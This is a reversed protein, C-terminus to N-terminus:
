RGGSYPAVRPSKSRGMASRGSGSMLPLPESAFSSGGGEETLRMSEDDLRSASPSSRTFTDGGGRTGGGGVGSKGGSLWPKYPSTAGFPAVKATRRGLTSMRGTAAMSGGRSGRAGAGGGFFDVDRPPLFRVVAGLALAVVGLAISILLQTVTIPYTAFVSSGVMVIIIQAVFIGLLIGVGPLNNLVGHLPNLQDHIRRCNFYNFLQFCVFSNFVCTYHELTGMRGPPVMYISAGTTTYQLAQLVGIQVLGQVVVAKIMSPTLIPLSKDGPRLQMIEPDAREAGLMLAGFADMILNIWLLQISALPFPTDAGMKSFASILTTICAVFNVCLQFQLFKRLNEMIARGWLVSDVASNLDGTLSVVRAAERCVEVASHGMSFGIHSASLTGADETNEGTTLVVEGLEKLAECLMLKDSPTARALVELRPVAASREDPTMNRWKSGELLIGDKLIGVEEALARACAPHEGTALRVKIGGQSCLAVSDAVGPRPPDRMGVIALLTLGTEVTALTGEWARAAKEGGLEAGPPALSSDLTRYAIAVARLGRSALLDVVSALTDRRRAELPVLTGDATMYVACSAIVLEPIGTVYATYRGSGPLLTNASPSAAPAGQTLTGGGGLGGAESITKLPAVSSGPSAPSFITLSRGKTPTFADRYVFPGAGRRLASFDLDFDMRLMHLLAVETPCGVTDCDEMAEISAAEAALVAMPGGTSTIGGKGTRFVRLADPTYSISADNGLACVRALLDRRAGGVVKHLDPVSDYLNGFFWGRTVLPRGATLSGVKDTTVATVDGLQECTILDKVLVGKSRLHKLATLQTLTLALPLGEPVAVVILTIGMIFFNLIARFSGNYLPYFLILYSITLILFCSVGVTLGFYGIRNGLVELKDALPSPPPDIDDLVERIKGYTSNMGVALVLLRGSGQMVKSGGIFFLNDSGKPVLFTEATAASEDCKIGNGSLYVGDCTIVEGPRVVLVDGVVLDYCSIKQERGDRLVVLDRDNKKAAVDNLEREQRLAQISTIVALSISAALIGAGHLVDSNSKSYSVGFSILVIASVILAVLVVDNLADLLHYV